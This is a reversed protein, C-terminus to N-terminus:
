PSNIGYDKYLRIIGNLYNITKVKFDDLIENAQDANVQVIETFFGEVLPQLKNKYLSETTKTPDSLIEEIESYIFDFPFSLYCNSVNLNYAKIKSLDSFEDTNGGYAHRMHRFVECINLPRQTIEDYFMDEKFDEAKIAPIDILDFMVRGQASMNVKIKLGEEIAKFDRWGNERKWYEDTLNQKYDHIKRFNAIPLVEYLIRYRIREAVENIFPNKSKEFLNLLDNDTLFALENPKKNLDLLARIILEQAARHISNYYLRRYVTERAKLMSEMSMASSANLFLRNKDEHTHIEMNAVIDWIDVDGTKVGTYFADRRLYDLRDIGFTSPILDCLFSYRNTLEEDGLDIPKGFSLAAINKPEILGIAEKEEGSYKSELVSKLDSLYTPIQNFIPDTLENGAIDKGTILRNGWREHTWERYTVDRRCFMEFVHCFPGHGIDHLLASIEMARYTIENFQIKKINDTHTQSHFDSLRDYALQALFSSGVSHEFRTHTAGPFVLYLTSLQRIGRLRQFVELDILRRVIGSTPIYGYLPDYYLGKGLKPLKKQVKALRM